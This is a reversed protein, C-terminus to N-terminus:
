LSSEIGLLTAVAWITKNSAADVHLKSSSDNHGVISRLVMVDTEEKM